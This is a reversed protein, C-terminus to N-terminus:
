GYAYHRDELSMEAWGKTAELEDIIDFFGERIKGKATSDPAASQVKLHSAPRKVTRIKDQKPM